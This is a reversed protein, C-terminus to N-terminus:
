MHSGNVVNVPPPPPHPGFDNELFNGAKEEGGGERYIKYMCLSMILVPM